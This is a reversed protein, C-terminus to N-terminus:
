ASTGISPQDLPGGPTAPPPMQEEVLAAEDDLTPVVVPAPPVPERQGDTSPPTQTTAPAADLLALRLVDSGYGHRELHPEEHRASRLM